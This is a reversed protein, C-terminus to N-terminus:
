FFNHYAKIENGHKRFPIFPPKNKLLYQFPIFNFNIYVGNEGRCDIAMFIKIFVRLLIVIMEMIMTANLLSMPKSETQIFLIIVM